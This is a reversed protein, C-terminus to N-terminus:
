ESGKSQHMARECEYNVAARVCEALMHLGRHQEWTLSDPGCVDSTQALLEWDALDSHVRSIFSLCCQVQFLTDATTEEILPNLTLPRFVPTTTM